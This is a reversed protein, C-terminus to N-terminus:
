LAAIRLHMRPTQLCRSTTVDQAERRITRKVYDIVWDHMKQRGTETANKRTTICAVFEKFYDSNKWFGNWRDCRNEPNFFYCILDGMSVDLEELKQLILDIATQLVSAQDKQSRAQKEQEEERAQRAKADHEARKQRERERAIASRKPDPEKRTKACTALRRGLRRNPSIRPSLNPAAPLTSHGEAPTPTLVRCMGAPPFEPAPVDEEIDLWDSDGDSDDSYGDSDSEDADNAEVGWIDSSQTLIEEFIPTCAAEFDHADIESGM